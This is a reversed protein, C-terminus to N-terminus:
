GSGQRTDSRYGWSDHLPCNCSTGIWDLARKNEEIQQDIRLAPDKLLEGAAKMSGCYEARNGRRSTPFLRDIYQEHEAYRQVLQVVELATLDKAGVHVHLGCSTNVKAGAAQLANCVKRVQALGKAGRLIPSIVEATRCGNLSCDDVFRWKDKSRACYDEPDVCPIGALKLVLYSMEQNLGVIELEVGFTRNPIKSM